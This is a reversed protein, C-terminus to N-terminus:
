PMGASRPFATASSQEASALQIVPCTRSTSPPAESMSACRGSAIWCIGAFCAWTAQSPRFIQAQGTRTMLTESVGVRHGSKTDQTNKRPPIAPALAHRLQRVDNDIDLRELLTNEALREFAHANDAREQEAGHSRGDAACFPLLDRTQAPESLANADAEFVAEPQNQVQHDGAPQVPTRAAGFNRRRAAKSCKVKGGSSKEPGFGARLLASREVDDGSFVAKASEIGAADFHEAGIRRAKGRNKEGRVVSELAREGVSAEEATDAIGIGVFNQEFGPKRGEGEGLLEGHRLDLAEEFGGTGRESVPEVAEAGFRAIFEGFVHGGKAFAHGNVATVFLRTRTAAGFDLADTVGGVFGVIAGGALGASLEEGVAGEGAKEAFIPGAGEFFEFEEGCLVGSGGAGGGGWTNDDRACDLSRSQGM